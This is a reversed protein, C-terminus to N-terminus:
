GVGVHYLQEFTLLVRVRVCMGLTLGCGCPVAARLLAPLHQEVVSEQDSVAWAGEAGAAAM